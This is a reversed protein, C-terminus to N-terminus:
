RYLQNPYTSEIKNLLKENGTCYEMAHPANIFGSTTNFLKFSAFNQDIHEIIDFMTVITLWECTCRRRDVIM